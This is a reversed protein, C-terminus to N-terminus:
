IGGPDASNKPSSSGEVREVLSLDGERPSLPYFALSSPLGGGECRGAAQGGCGDAVFDSIVPPPSRLVPVPGIM